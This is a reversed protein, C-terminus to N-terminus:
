LENTTQTESLTRIIEESLQSSNLNNYMTVESVENVHTYYATLVDNLESFKDRITGMNSAAKGAATDAWRRPEMVEPEVSPGGGTIIRYSSIDMSEPMKRIQSRLEYTYRDGYYRSM